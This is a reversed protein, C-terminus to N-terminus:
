CPIGPVTTKMALKTYAGPFGNAAMHQVLSVAEEVANHTVNDITHDFPNVSYLPVCNIQKIFNIYDDTSIAWGSWDEWERLDKNSVREEPWCYSNALNGGPFRMVGAGLDTFYETVPSTLKGPSVWCGMNGGMILRPNVRRLVSSADITINYEYTQVSVIRLNCGSLLFFPLVLFIINKKRM